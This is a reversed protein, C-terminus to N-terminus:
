VAELDALAAKLDIVMGILAAHVFTQPYNGLLEGTWPDAEEALFGLDSAQALVAELITRARQPDRMVWYQAVWLTGALFVGERRDTEGALHRWYLHNHCYDRELVRLTALMEPTDPACYGWVPYLAATLDVGEEGAVYAYAGEATLGHCAVWDRAAAAARRWRAAQEPTSASGAIYELATAALVKGAVYPRKQREEWIGYDDDQWHDCLYEALREVVSWHERTGFREYILKAALLVNGYADLQLQGRAGNGIRVPRSDQYGRLNLEIEAPPDGGGVTMFPPAPLGDERHATGCIFALFQRGESGDSEIRTLASVVMGADRLWVYRYDWNKDGGAVEPLSTTPAAITAGSNGDTLMRLARLSSRVAHQYPGHYGAHAALEQWAALTQERWRAVDAWGPAADLRDDSLLAWAAEGAPVRVVVAGEEIRPPHSAYLWQRDSIQVGAGDPRLHAERRAYDPAARLVLELPQPAPSLTRCLGSPLGKGFPMFDTLTLALPAGGGSSELRLRSELVASDAVYSRGGGQAGPCVVAWSGGRVPDLLRALLSPADFRGPCYWVVEGLASVLAASRRDSLLALDRLRPEQAAREDQPLQEAQKRPETDQTM